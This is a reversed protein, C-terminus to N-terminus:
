KKNNEEKEKKEEKKEEKPAAFTQTLYISNGSNEELERDLIVFNNRDITLWFISGLHCLVCGKAGDFYRIIDQTCDPLVAQLVNNIFIRTM